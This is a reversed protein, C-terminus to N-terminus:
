KWSNRFHRKGIGSNKLDGQLTYVEIEAQANIHQFLVSLGLFYKIIQYM